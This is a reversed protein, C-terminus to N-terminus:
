VQETTKDFLRRSEFISQGFRASGRKLTRKLVFDFLLPNHPRIASIIAAEEESIYGEAAIQSIAFLPMVGPLPYDSGNVLRHHWDTQRLLTDLVPRFRNAQTVASIDGFLQGDYQRENMMRAFLLFNETSPGNPGRDIDPNAGLSACHAVIVRVGQELPRRLRLPNGLRQMEGSHVAKEEGGHSLLPVDLDVMAQYFRDCLPSAPDMGMAPPLWKVARAGQKVADHLAEVCDSRYPHISAIWEFHSPFSKVVRAAYKNPIHFTSMDPQREGRENYHFDFALLMVRNGTPLGSQYAVLRRLYDEDVHEHDKICAANMYFKFQAFQIPHLLSQMDPNIWIGSESDGTGLLHM